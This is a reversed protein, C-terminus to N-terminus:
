QKREGDWDGAAAQKAQDLAEMMVRRLRYRSELDTNVLEFGVENVRARRLLVQGHIRRVGVSIELNAETGVRLNDEKVGMGGGLSLERVSISSKGWSSGITGSLPKRLTVREYRRQRVWPCAPAADLPAIALEGPELGSETLVKSGYRPDIKALAQAAAIRLERHNAWKWVKKAELLSRLVPVAEPERLRGLSEVAKVQILPSRGQAEGSEAIVMLPPAATRDGSMGIEDLAQPLVLPDLIELLELLTRGRDPAAGYAIQRVVMDHYFRNWERLRASLLELLAPVDLRSLLGVGAAAQRPQGSRLTERLHDMGAPGLERALDVMRDCEDRRMCRFFRDALHEAAAPATRQFVQVLEVPFRPLRLAEEIFEPLRNEVGIRPRLENALAARQVNLADMVKCVAHVAGYQKRTNAEASLRVFAASLMSQIEADQEGALREGVKQVALALLEDGAAAYLDALQGLGIMTKRQPEIDGANLCSAYNKLIDGATEKDGRDLLLEVFQRVNRAPVCPAESSLLVSKKGAEPVEAWFIRDLIDAHSEVLIGAKSMKDEQLRLIQRLTDMQRSMHEMMQHVANVKVEGKQFRELAFRIAMHEAAKMLLPTDGEESSSANKAALGELLQMLNFKVNPDVEKLEGQLLEPRLEGGGSGVEGFRTLLRIAQVVEEEQLPVVGGDWAAAPAAAAGASVSGRANPVTGLPAGGPVGGGSQAGEAAAILQLLKQPENLWDKFEPGLTQAAIQAAISIDGTTPDTAIFKVENIKISSRNNDGLADRIQKAMDQAKSGSSTFATVLRTFDEKTVQSSFQISALGATTLLQAFSREAQGSELPIGDLLLKNESVGLLFGSERDKPLGQQLEAWTTKFQGETRKHELGYLRVYKVLINLSHM